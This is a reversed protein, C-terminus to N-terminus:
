AHAAAKAFLSEEYLGGKGAFLNEASVEVAPLGSDIWRSVQAKSQPTV